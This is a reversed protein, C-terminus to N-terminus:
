PGHVWGRAHLLRSTRASLPSRQADHSLLLNRKGALKSAFLQRIPINTAAVAPSGSQREGECTRSAVTPEALTGIRKDPVMLPASVIMPWPYHRNISQNHLNVKAPDIESFQRTLTQRTKKVRVRM